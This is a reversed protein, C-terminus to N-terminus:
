TEAFHAIRAQYAPSAHCADSILGHMAAARGDAPMALALKLYRVAERPLGALIEARALAEQLTAGPATVRTVLGLRCGTEADLAEGGLILELARARGVLAPLRQVAGFSPVSGLALGPVGRRAGPDAFRLDCALALELGGGLVHGHLAAISPLPAAAVRDLARWAAEVFRRKDAGSLRAVTALDAGASFGRPGRGALVMAGVSEDAEIAEVAAVLGQCLAPDLANVKAPRDLWVLAVAGHREIAVRGEGDEAMAVESGTPGSRLPLAARAVCLLFERARM